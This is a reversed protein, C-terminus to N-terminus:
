DGGGPPHYRVAKPEILRNELCIKPPQHEADGSFRQYKEQQAHCMLDLNHRELRAHGPPLWGHLPGRWDVAQRSGTLCTFFLCCIPRISGKYTRKVIMSGSSSAKSGTLLALFM